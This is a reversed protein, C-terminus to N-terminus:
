QYTVAQSAPKAPAGRPYLVVVIKTPQNVAGHNNHGNKKPQTIQKKLRIRDPTLWGEAQQNCFAFLGGIKLRFDAQFPFLGFSDAQFQVKGSSNKYKMCHMGEHCLQDM